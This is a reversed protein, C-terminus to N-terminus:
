KYTATYNYGSDTWTLDNNTEIKFTWYDGDSFDISGTMEIPDFEYTFDTTEAQAVGLGGLVDVQEWYEGTSATLFRLEYDAGALGLVDVRGEWTHGALDNGIIVMGDCGALLGVLLLLVAIVGLTKKM